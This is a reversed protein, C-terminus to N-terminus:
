FTCLLHYPVKRITLVNRNMLILNHLRNLSIKYMIKRSDDITGLGQLENEVIDKGESNTENTLTVTFEDKSYKWTQFYKHDGFFNTSLPKFGFNRVLRVKRLKILRPQIQKLLLRLSNRLMSSIAFAWCLFSKGQDHIMRSNLTALKKPEVYTQSM